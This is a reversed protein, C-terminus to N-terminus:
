HIGLSGKVKKSYSSISKSEILISGHSQCVLHCTETYGCLFVMGAQRRYGDFVSLVACKQTGVFFYWAQRGATGM